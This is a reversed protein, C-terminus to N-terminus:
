CLTVMADRRPLPPPGACIRVRRESVQVVSRRGEAAFIQFLCAHSIWVVHLMSSLSAGGALQQVGAIAAACCLLTFRRREAVRLLADLSTVLFCAWIALGVLGLNLLASLHSNHLQGLASNIGSERGIADGVVFGHGLVPAQPFAELFAYRWVEFRGTGNDIAAVSKFGLFTAGPDDPLLAFLWALAVAAIVPIAVRMRGPMWLFVLLACAFCLGLYTTLGTEAIVVIITLAKYVRSLWPLESLGALFLVPLFPTAAHVNHLGGISLGEVPIVWVVYALYSFAVYTLSMCCLFAIRYRIVQLGDIAMAVVVLFVACQSAKFLTLLPAESWLASLMAMAYYCVLWCMPSRFLVRRSTGLARRPSVIVSVGIIFTAVIQFIAYADLDTLDRIEGTADRQALLLRDLALYLLLGIRQSWGPLRWYLGVALWLKRAAGATSEMVLFKVAGM